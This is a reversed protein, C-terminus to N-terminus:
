TAPSSLKFNIKLPDTKNADFWENRIICSDNLELKDELGTERLYKEYLSWKSRFDIRAYCNDQLKKYRALYWDRYIFAFIFTQEVLSRM